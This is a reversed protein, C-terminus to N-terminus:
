QQDEMERIATEVDKKMYRPADKGDNGALTIKKGPRKFHTWVSHGGKAPRYHFGAKKLMAKLERIKKPM